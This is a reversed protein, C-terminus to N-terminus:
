SVLLLLAAQTANTTRAPLLVAPWRGTAGFLTLL